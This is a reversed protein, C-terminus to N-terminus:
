SPRNGFSPHNTEDTMYDVYNKNVLKQFIEEDELFRSIFQLTSEVREPENILADSGFLIRDQYQKIFSKYSLPDKEIFSELSSMDTYCNPYKELLVSIARRSFGFHAINFNTRSNSEIMEAIFDGYKTLDVHILIPMRESSAKEIILSTIKESQKRTRGFAKEMGGVRLVVDEEPVYLLKLGKFGRQRYMKIKGEINNEIFRADLFPVMKLRRPLNMVAFPDKQRGLSEETISPHFEGPIMKLVTDIESPFEALVLINMGGLGNEEFLDFSRKLQNLSCQYVFHIHADYYKMDLIKTGQEQGKM